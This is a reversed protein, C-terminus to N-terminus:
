LEGGLLFNRQNPELRLRVIKLLLSCVYLSDIPEIFHKTDFNNVSGQFYITKEM